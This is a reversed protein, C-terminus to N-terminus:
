LVNEGKDVNKQFNKSLKENQCNRRMIRAIAADAARVRITHAYTRTVRTNYNRSKEATPTAGKPRPKRGRKPHTKRSTKPTNKPPQKPTTYHAFTFPLPSRTFAFPRLPARCVRCVACARVPARSARKRGDTLRIKKANIINATHHPPIKCGFPLRFVAFLIHGSVRVGVGM